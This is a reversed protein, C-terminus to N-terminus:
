LASARLVAHWALARTGAAGGQLLRLPCFAGPEGPSRSALTDAEPGGSGSASGVRAVRAGAETGAAGWPQDAAPTGLVPRQFWGQRWGPFPERGEGRGGFGPCHLCSLAVSWFAGARALNSALTVQNRLLNTQAVLHAQLKGQCWQPAAKELLSVPQPLSTLHLPSSSLLSVSLFLCLNFM